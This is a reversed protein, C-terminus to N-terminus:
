DIKRMTRLYRAATEFEDELQVILTEILAGDFPVEEITKSIETLRRAGINASSGKLSHAQDRLTRQDKDEFAKKLAPIRWGADSLFLDILETILDPQNPQQLDRFSNLVSADVPPEHDESASAAAATNISEPGVNEPEEEDDPELRAVWSGITQRLTELKVPKSIYDDMGAALCKEREGELAHATVAIITTHNLEDGCRRIEATAEFGDMEPM